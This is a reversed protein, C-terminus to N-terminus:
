RNEKIETITAMIGRKPGLGRHSYLHEKNCCTCLDSIVINELGEKELIHKNILPLDLYFKGNKYFIADEFGFKNLFKLYLDESVEYCNRCIGPGILCIADKTSFLEKMKKYTLSALSNFTGKWGCHASGVAKNKIDIITVPICDASHIAIPLNKENTVIADVSEYDRERYVGKGADDITAVLINSGHTQRTTVINQATFGASASFIEYNKVINELSDDTSTGLNLTGLEEGKTVGGHRTSIAMNVFDMDDLAKFKLYVVGNKEIIHMNDSKLMFEESKLQFHLDFLASRKSKLKGNEM